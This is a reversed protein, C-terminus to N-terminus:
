FDMKYKHSKIEPVNRCYQSTAVNNVRVIETELWENHESNILEAFNFKTSLKIKPGVPFVAKKEFRETYIKGSRIMELASRELKKIAKSVLTKGGTLYRVRKRRSRLVM